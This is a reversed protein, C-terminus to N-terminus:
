KLERLETVNDANLNPWEGTKIAGQLLRDWLSVAERKQQLYKAKNYIARVGSKTASAQHHLLADTIFDPVGHDALATTVVTRIDHVTWGEVGSLEDLKEKIRPFNALPRSPNRLSPFLYASAPSRDLIQRATANRDMVVMMDAESSSM